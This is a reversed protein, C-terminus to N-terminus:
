WEKQIKKNKTQIILHYPDSQITIHQSRRELRLGVIIGKKSHTQRM